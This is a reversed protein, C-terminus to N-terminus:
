KDQINQQIQLLQDEEIGELDPPNPAGEILFEYIGIDGSNPIHGNVKATAQSGPLPDGLLSEISSTRYKSSIKIQSPYKAKGCSHPLLNVDATSDEGTTTNDTMKIDQTDKSAEPARISAQLAAQTNAKEAKRDKANQLAKERREKLIKKREANIEYVKTTRCKNSKVTQYIDDNINEDTKEKDRQENTDKGYVKRAKDKNFKVMEDIDNDNTDENIKETDRQANRYKVPSITLDISDLTQNLCDRSDM